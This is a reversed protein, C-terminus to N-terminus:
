RLCCFATYPRGSWLHGLRVQSTAQISTKVKLALTCRPRNYPFTASEKDQSARTVSARITSSWSIRLKM